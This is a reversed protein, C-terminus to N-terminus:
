GSVELARDGAGDILRGEDEGAAGIVDADVVTARVNGPPVCETVPSRTAVDHPKTCTRIRTASRCRTSTVASSVGCPLGVSMSMLRSATGCNRAAARAACLAFMSVIEPALM